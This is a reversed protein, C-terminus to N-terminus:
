LFLCIGNVPFHNERNKDPAKEQQVSYRKRASFALFLIDSGDPSPKKRLM